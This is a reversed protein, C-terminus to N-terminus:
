AAAQDESAEGLREAKVALFSRGGGDLLADKGTEAQWREVAVDVYSETGAQSLVASHSVGKRLTPGAGGACHRISSLWLASRDIEHRTKGSRALRLPRQPCKRPRNRHSDAKPKRAEFSTTKCTCSGNM